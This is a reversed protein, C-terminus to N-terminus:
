IEKWIDLLDYQEINNLLFDMDIKNESVYIMNRIDRLHKESGGEKFFELKRIVVYEIPAIWVSCGDMEVKNRNKVAWLGLDDEFFYIDAKFGTELHIINFHGNKKQSIENEIVSQNPCYFDPMSFTNLFDSFSKPKLEIVIDIDHTIRPEGYIISAVSGTVMYQLNLENLKKVFVIFFNAQHM